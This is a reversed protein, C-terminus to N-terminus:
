DVTVKHVYKVWNFGYHGQAVVRLPFGHKIPLPRGNVEYALFIENSLVEKLHFSETKEYPGEPGSFAVLTAGHKIKAQQLLPILSFGKWRGNNAFFGPCILLVNREIAPLSLIQSYTLLIPREIHGEISLRWTNLNTQHDTIGMTKFDDLPTISLNRTDLDAPNKDVLDKRPFNKPLIMKQIKGHVLRVWSFLPGTFFAIGAIFRISVKLFKRKSM